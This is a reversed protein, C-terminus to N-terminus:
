YNILQLNVKWGNTTTQSNLGKFKFVPNNTTSTSDILLTALVIENTDLNIIQYNFDVAPLGTTGPVTWNTFSTTFTATGGITGSLTITKKIAKFVPTGTGASVLVDGSNGASTSAMTTTSNGFIIGGQNLNGTQGTGGKSVPVSGGINGLNLNAENVDVTINNNGDTAISVKTTGAAINKFQLNTGNKSVFVGQGLTGINSATIQGAASFQTWTIATTGLTGGQDATSLWGTDANVTGQQIFVYASPVESWNDMYASRAWAGSAATYLGNLAPTTHDKVLVIDGAITTFGDITLLGSLTSISTATAYRATFKNAIGQTATDVYATTALGSSTIVAAPLANTLKASDIGSALMANTVKGAGITTAGMTGSVDGSLSGTFSTASTATSANGSLNATITGASFNGSSDRKVITSGTASNTAAITDAISQAIQAATKGGVTAVTTSGATAISVDGSMAVATAVNSGNGVFIFGSSLTINNTILSVWNAPANSSAGNFYQYQTTTTNFILLGADNANLTMADRVTTTCAWARFNKLNYYNVLYDEGLYM